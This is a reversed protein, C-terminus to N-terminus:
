VSVKEQDRIMRINWEGLDRRRKIRQGEAKEKDEEGEKGITGSYFQTSIRM